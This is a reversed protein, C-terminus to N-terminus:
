RTGSAGDELYWAKSFLLIEGRTGVQLLNWVQSSNKWIDAKQKKGFGRILWRDERM